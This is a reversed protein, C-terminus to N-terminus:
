EQYIPSTLVMLHRMSYKVHLLGRQNSYRNLVMDCIKHFAEISQENIFGLPIKWTKVYEICHILYHYKPGLSINLDLIRNIYQWHKDYTKLLEEAKAIDSESITHTSKNLIHM